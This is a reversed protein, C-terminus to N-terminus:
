PVRSIGPDLAWLDPLLRPFAEQATPVDSSMQVNDGRKGNTDQYALM